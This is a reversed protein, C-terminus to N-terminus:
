DLVIAVLSVEQLGLLLMKQQFELKCGAKKTAQEIITQQQKTLM